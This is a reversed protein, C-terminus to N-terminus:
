VSKGMLDQGYLNESTDYDPKQSTIDVRKKIKLCLTSLRYSVANADSSFKDEM